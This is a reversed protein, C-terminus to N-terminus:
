CIASSDNKSYILVIKVVPIVGLKNGSSSFSANQLSTLSNANFYPTGSEFSANHVNQTLEQLSLNCITNDIDGTPSINLFLHLANGPKTEDQVISQYSLQDSSPKFTTALVIKYSYVLIYTISSVNNLSM